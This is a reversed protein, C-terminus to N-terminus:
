EAGTYKAFLSRIEKDIQQVETAEDAAALKELANELNEIDQKMEELKKAQAPSLNSKPAQEVTQRMDEVADEMADAEADDAVEDMAETAAEHQEMLAEDFEGQILNLSCRSPNVVTKLAKILLSEKAKLKGAVPMLNLVLSKGQEDYSVFCLGRLASEKVAIQKAHAKWKALKGFVMFFEGPADSYQQETHLFFPAATAQSNHKKALKKVEKFFRGKFEKFSFNELEKPSPCIPKLSMTLLNLNVSRYYFIPQIAKRSLALPM